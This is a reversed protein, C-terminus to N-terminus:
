NFVFKPIYEVMAAMERIYYFVLEGKKYYTPKPSSWYVHGFGVRKAVLVARALHFSDSVLIISKAAPILKKSYNINEYTSQSNSELILPPTASSNTTIVGAMYAAESMSKPYDVGGSVVLVNAKGEQYLRLGELSRNYLAPTNIAAGLIVIADAQKINPRYVSFFMVVVFDLFFIGAIAVAIFKLIKWLKKM